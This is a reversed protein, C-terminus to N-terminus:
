GSPRASKGGCAGESVPLLAESASDVEDEADIRASTGVSRWLQTWLDTEAWEAGGHRGSITIRTNAIVRSIVALPRWARSFGSEYVAAALSSHSAPSQTRPVTSLSM